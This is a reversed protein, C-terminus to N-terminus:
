LNLTCALRTVPICLVCGLNMAHQAVVYPYGLIFEYEFSEFVESYSGAWSYFLM